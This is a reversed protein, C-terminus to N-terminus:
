LVEARKDWQRVAVRLAMGTGGYRRSTSGETQEFPDFVRAQPPLSVDPRSPDISRSTRGPFVDPTLKM